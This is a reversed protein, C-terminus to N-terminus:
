GDLRWVITGDRDYVREGLADWKAVGADGHTPASSRASSSTACATATAAAGRAGATTPSEYMRAVDERRTGVDHGWQCSTAPGASCPRCGPSPRSARTASRPTTRASRRSCSPARRRTRRQALRDRRRRGARPRAALRPRRADARAHLRGQARLHGRGPLRRPRRRAAGRAARADLAPRAARLWERAGPWRASRRRARAAALGPLRAQLRHEHPVAARRRVRRARLAAGPGLLCAVGGAVLLWVLRAPRRRARRSCRASRSWCRSRWCRSTRTSSRRSCRARSCRRSRSGPRTAARAGRDGAAARRLRARRARRALRVAAARRAALRRLGRGEEVVGIGRAAPDFSLHFPLM